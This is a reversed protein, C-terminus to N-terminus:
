DGVDSRSRAKVKGWVKNVESNGYNDGIVATHKYGMSLIATLLKTSLDGFTKCDTPTTCTMHPLMMLDVVLISEEETQPISPMAHDNEMWSMIMSKTNKRM